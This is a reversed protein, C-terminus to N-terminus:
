RQGRAADLMVELNEKTVEALQFGVIQGNPTIAFTEPQGRTAFDLAACADPDLAITWDM